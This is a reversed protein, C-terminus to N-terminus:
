VGKKNFNYIGFYIILFIIAPFSISIINNILSTNILESNIEAFIICVLGLFFLLIKNFIYKPNKENILILISAIAAISLIYIQKMSRDFLEKAGKISSNQSCHFNTLSYNEKKGYTFNKICSILINSNLEKLKPFTTSKTKFNSLNFTTSNFKIVNSDDFNNNRIDLIQGFNLNLYKKSGEEIIKGSRASIIQTNIRSVSDKLFINKMNGENDISEVFITFDKVTDIFKKETILSTFFDINSTRIYDRSHDQLKPIAFYVFIIQLITFLISIKIIFNILNIKSIGNTWFILIENNAQYKQIIYFISVFFSFITINFFVKPFNLSIFAFYIRFGHGDKSILDLYNVSQIVWTIISLSFSVILFFVVLDYFFKRYIIKKM